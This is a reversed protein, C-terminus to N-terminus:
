SMILLGLQSPLFEGVLNLEMNSIFIFGSTRPQLINGMMDVAKNIAKHLSLSIVKNNSRNRKNGHAYLSIADGLLTGTVDLIIILGEQFAENINDVLRKNRGLIYLIEDNLNDM